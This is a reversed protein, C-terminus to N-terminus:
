GTELKKSLDDEWLWFLEDKVDVSEWCVHLGVGGGDGDRGYYEDGHQLGAWCGDYGGEGDGAGAGGEEAPTDTDTGPSRALAGRGGSCGRHHVPVRRVMHGWRVRVERAPLVVQRRKLLARVVAQMRRLRDLERGVPADDHRVQGRRAHRPEAVVVLVRADVLKVLDVPGDDSDIPGSDLQRIQGRVDHRINLPRNEVSRVILGHSTRTPRKTDGLRKRGLISRLTLKEDTTSEFPSPQSPSTSTSGHGTTHHHLRSPYPSCSPVSSPCSEKNGKKKQFPDSTIVFNGNHDRSYMYILAEKVSKWIFRERVNKSFLQDAEAKQVQTAFSVSTEVGLHDWTMLRWTVMSRFLEGVSGEVRAFGGVVNSINSVSAAM